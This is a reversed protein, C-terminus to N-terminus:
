PQVLELKIWEYGISRTQQEFAILDEPTKAMAQMQCAGSETAVTLRYQKPKAPPLPDTNWVASGRRVEGGSFGNM